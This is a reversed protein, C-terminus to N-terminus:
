YYSYYKGFAVIKFNGWLMFILKEILYIFIAYQVNTFYYNGTTYALFRDFYPPM